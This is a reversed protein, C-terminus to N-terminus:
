QYEGQKSKLENMLRTLAVDLNCTLREVQTSVAGTALAEELTGAALEVEAGALSAAM